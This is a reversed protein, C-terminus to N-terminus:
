SIWNNAKSKRSYYLLFAAILIVFIPMVLAANAGLVEISNTGMVSYLMQILVAVLSIAFLQIAWSKRILLSIAGLLGTITAIGYVIKMWSPNNEYMEQLAPEMGEMMQSTMMLDGVFAAVGMLNWLLAIASIIWFIVPAKTNSM